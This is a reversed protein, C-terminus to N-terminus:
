GLALWDHRSVRLLSGYISLFGGGELSDGVALFRAMEHFFGVALSRALIRSFGIRRRALWWGQSVLSYSRAM